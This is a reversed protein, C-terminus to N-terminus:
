ARLKGRRNMALFGLICVITGGIWIWNILPNVSIKLSIVKSEDFGLLTAYLEDGLSPLVSVEAFPQEFNRYIRKQPFLEGIKKGDKYVELKAEYIAMGPTFKEKFDIYKVEYEKISMTKNLSLIVEKEQKYPGSFSIGLVILAIGLHVGYTGWYVRQRRLAQQRIFLLVISLCITIASGAGLLPLIDRIGSIWLVIFSSLLFLAIIFGFKPDTLGKKWKLWPCICLLLSMVVFLPLCVRNYFGAELGVTNSTWLSSIVPWMTGLVVILGLAIFLWSFLLMAGQRSLPADMAKSNEKVTFMLFFTVLFSLFMLWLLPVGVGKSGFAHLSDIVNSRVLFTAFFCSILSLAMFFLNTRALARKQRGIVATHLYATSILWPILSANEVPDWAWYGGWGLEMYSWWAGLIIGASLAIWAFLIWNRGQKMWSFQDGTVWNAFALCTPITFGAYGLFLLPPHFIMGPNQLLPNLGKGSTPTPVIKLFPNSPGTLMLLFFAEALFYFGWFFVKTKSDLEKYTPSFIFCFGLISLVWSWFLFSGDQGAWFATLAYFLPLFEDTYDHVYAFSFDRIGLAWFLIVSSLSILVLSAIQGREMWALINLESQGNNRKLVQYFGAGGLLILVLLSLLLSFFAIFHM